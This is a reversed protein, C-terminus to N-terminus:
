NEQEARLHTKAGSREDIRSLSSFSVLLYEKTADIVRVATPSIVRLMAKLQQLHARVQEPKQIDFVAKVAAAM